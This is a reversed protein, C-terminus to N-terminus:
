GATVKVESGFRLRESGIQLRACMFISEIHVASSTCVVFM